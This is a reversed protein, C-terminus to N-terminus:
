CGGPAEIGAILPIGQASVTVRAFSVGNCARGTSLQYQYRTRVRGDPLLSVDLVQLPSVLSGYFQSLATASLPGSLRKEPVVFGAAASGDGQSLARYFRSVVVSPDLDVHSPIPAVPEARLVLQPPSPGPGPQDQHNTSAITPLSESRGASRRLALVSVMVIVGLSVCIMAILYGNGKTRLQARPIPQPQLPPATAVPAARGATLETVLRDLKRREDGGFLDTWHRLGLFLALGRAPEVDNFRVPFLPKGSSFAIEIEAKVHRSLNASDSVLAVVASSTEIADQIAESYDSGPRVDRPAMWVRVGKSELGRLLADASTQDATSYSLFVHKSDVAGGPNSLCYRLDMPSLLRAFGFREGVAKARL